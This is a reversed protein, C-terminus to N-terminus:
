AWEKRPECAEMFKDWDFNPNDHRFYQALKKVLTEGDTKWNEEPQPLIKTTLAVHRVIAAIRDHDKQTLM